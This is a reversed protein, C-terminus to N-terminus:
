RRVDGLHRQTFVVPARPKVFFRRKKKTAALALALACASAERSASQGILKKTLAGCVHICVGACQESVGGRQEEPHPAFSPPWCATLVAGAQLGAMDIVVCAGGERGVEGRGYVVQTNGQHEGAAHKVAATMWGDVGKEAVDSRGRTNRQSAQKASLSLFVCVAGKSV